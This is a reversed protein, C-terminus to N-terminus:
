RRVILFPISFFFAGVTLAIGIAALRIIDDPMGGLFPYLGEKYALIIDAM